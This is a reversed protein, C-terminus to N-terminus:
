VVDSVIEIQLQTQQMRQNMAAKIMTCFLESITRITYGEVDNADLVLDIVM